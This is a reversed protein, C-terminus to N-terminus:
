EAREPSFNNAMWHYASEINDLAQPLIEVSYIM